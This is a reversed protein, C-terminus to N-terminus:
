AFWRRRGSRRAGAHTGLTLDLAPITRHTIPPDMM